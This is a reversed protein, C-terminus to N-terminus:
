LFPASSRSPHQSSHQNQGVRNQWGSVPSVTTQSQSSFPNRIGRHKGVAPERGPTHSGRGRYLSDQRCNDTRKDMLKKLFVCYGFNVVQPLPPSRYATQFPVQQSPSHTHSDTCRDEKGRRPSAPHSSLSPALCLGHTRSAGTHM